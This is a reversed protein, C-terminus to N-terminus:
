RDVFRGGASGVPGGGVLESQSQNREGMFKTGYKTFQGISQTKLLSEQIDFDDFDDLGQLQSYSEYENFGM